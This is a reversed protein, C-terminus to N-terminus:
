RTAESNQNAVANKAVSSVSPVSVRANWKKIATSECTSSAKPKIGCDPNFCGVKTPDRGTQITASKGCFPCALLHDEILLDPLMVLETDYEGDWLIWGGDGRAQVVRGLKRTDRAIVEQDQYLWLPQKTM